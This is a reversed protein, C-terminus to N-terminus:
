VRREQVVLNYQVVLHEEAVQAVAEMIVVMMAPLIIQRLEVVEMVEMLHLVQVPLGLVPMEALVPPAPAVAVQVPHHQIVQEELEAVLYLM